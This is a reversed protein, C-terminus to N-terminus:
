QALPRLQAFLLALVWSVLWSSRGMFARQKLGDMKQDEM